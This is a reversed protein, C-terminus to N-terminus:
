RRAKQHQLCFSAAECLWVLYSAAAVATLLLAEGAKTHCCESYSLAEARRNANCDKHGNSSDKYQWLALLATRETIEGGPSHAGYYSLNHISTTM